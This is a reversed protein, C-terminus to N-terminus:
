TLSNNKLNLKQVNPLRVNTTTFQTLGCEVCDFSSLNSFNNNTLNTIPNCSM